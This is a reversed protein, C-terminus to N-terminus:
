RWAQRHLHRDCAPVQRRHRCGANRCETTADVIVTWPGNASTGQEWKWKTNPLENATDADTDDQDILTATLDVSVQPQQASLSISGDEDVDTVTVIVKHYTMQRGTVGMADDSAVVVVKYENNDDSDDPMEFDPPLTFSLAGDSSITFEDADVVDPETM